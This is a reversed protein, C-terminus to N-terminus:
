NEDKLLFPDDKRLNLQRNLTFDFSSFGSGISFINSQAITDNVIDGFIIEKRFTSRLYAKNKSKSM